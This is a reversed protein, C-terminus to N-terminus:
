ESGGLTSDGCEWYAERQDIQSACTFNFNGGNDIDAALTKQRSPIDVLFSVAGGKKYSSGERYYATDSQSWGLSLLFTRMQLNQRWGVSSPLDKVQPLDALKTQIDVYSTSSFATDVPISTANTLTSGSQVFAYLSVCFGIVLVTAILRFINQSNM